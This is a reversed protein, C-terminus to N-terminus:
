TSADGNDRAGFKFTSGAGNGGAAFGFSFTSSIDGGGHSPTDGGTADKVVPTKSVAMELRRPVAVSVM